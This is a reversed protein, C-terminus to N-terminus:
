PEGEVEGLAEGIIELQSDVRADVDGTPTEIFCGGNRVRADPEIAIDKIATSDGKFREIQQEILPLHDPHVKVKIRSKDVLKRITGDIIGATVEPDLRASDFTVKRAISIVLQLIKARADNYLVERQKIADKIAGAFNDIVKQAEAHGRAIGHTMGEDYGRQYESNKENELRSEIKIIEQIPILKRGEISTIVNIDAFKAALRSEALRDAELDSRYEGIIVKDTLIPRHLLKSM